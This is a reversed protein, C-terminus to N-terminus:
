ASSFMAMFSALFARGGAAPRSSVLSAWARPAATEATIHTAVTTVMERLRFLAVGVSFMGNQIKRDAVKM